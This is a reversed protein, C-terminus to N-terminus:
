GEGGLTPPAPTTSEAAVDPLVERGQCPAAPSLRHEPGASLNAREQEAIRKMTRRRALAREDEGVLGLREALAYGQETIRVVGERGGRLAVIGREVPDGSGRLDVFEVDGIAASERAALWIEDADHEWECEGLPLYKPMLDRGDSIDRFYAAAQLLEYRASEVVESM